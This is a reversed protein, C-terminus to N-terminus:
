RMATDSAFLKAMSTCKGLDAPRRHRGDRLGQLPARARRRHRDGHRRAQVPDGAARHDAQRVRDARERVRQRLRDRGPRHRGGARRRRPPHARAHRARRDLGKGDEGIVNEEPVRVDTFSPSGTPSGKIGLKHELKGPDFGERDKEVVFATIRRNERDTHRLRRLLRGDGRQHDLEEPRQDGVRRRGQGRHHADLGPRLRGRAGLARLGAVVRRQRVEAPLAAEARRLRLAPDAAHRAGPDDPDARLLRVGQRDGRGRDAADAHRHRHRRVREAFPLGLIDQEALLKRIDWPYEGQPRDRRRAPAIKEQAIQRVM